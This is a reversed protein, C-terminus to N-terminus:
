QKGHDDRRQCVIRPIPRTNVRDTIGAKHLTAEIKEISHDHWGLRQGALGSWRRSKKSVKM